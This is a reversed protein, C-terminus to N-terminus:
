GRIGIIAIPTKDPLPKGSAAIGNMAGGIAYRLFFSLARLGLPSQVEHRDKIAQADRARARSLAYQLMEPTITGDGVPQDFFSRFDAKYAPVVQDRNIPKDKPSSRAPVVSPVGSENNPTGTPLAQPHLLNAWVIKSATSLTDASDLVGSVAADTAQLAAKNAAALNFNDGVNKAVSAADAGRADAWDHVAQGQEPSMLMPGKGGPQIKGGSAIGLAIDVPGGLRPASPDGFMAKAQDGSPRKGDVLIEWVTPGYKETVSNVRRLAMRSLTAPNFNQLADGVPSGAVKDGASKADAAMKPAAGAIATAADGVNTVKGATAVGVAIDAPGGAASLAKVAAVGFNGVPSGPATGKDVAALASKQWNSTPLNWFATALDGLKALADVAPAAEEPKPRPLAANVAAQAVTMNMAAAPPRAGLQDKIDAETFLSNGNNDTATRMSQARADYMTRDDSISFGSTAPGLPEATQKRTTGSLNPGSTDVTPPYVVGGPPMVDSKPLLEPPVQDRGYLEIFHGITDPHAKLYLTANQDPKLRPVINSSTGPATHLPDAFFRQQWQMVAPDQNAPPLTKQDQAPPQAPTPPVLSNAVDPPGDSPASPPALTVYPNAAQQAPPLVSTPPAAAVSPPPLATAQRRIETFKNVKDALVTAAPGNDTRKGIGSLFAATHSAISAQQRAIIDDVFARTGAAQLPDHILSGIIQTLVEDAYPGFTKEISAGVQDLRNTFEGPDPATTLPTAIRKAEADTLVAISAQDIGVAKQADIRAGILDHWTSANPNDAVEKMMAKVAPVDAVALAPDTARLKIMAQGTKEADDHVQQARDFGVSGPVPTLADLRDLIAANSISAMDHTNDYYTGADAADKQWDSFEGPTLLKQAKAPDVGVPQGTARISAVDDKILSTVQSKDATKRSAIQGNLSSAVNVPIGATDAFITRGQLESSGAMMASTMKKGAWSMLQAATMGTVEPHAAIIQQTLLDHVDTDPDANVINITGSPGIIDALYLETPTPPTGLARQLIGTNVAVSQIRKQTQAVDFPFAPTANEGEIKQSWVNIFQASTVTDIGGPFLKEANPINGWVAAKAWAEGKQQGEGTSLMNKWALENPNAEHARLGAEGQQHMLYIETATPPRGFEAQFADSKRKIVVAAARANDKANWISGGTGASRFEEDSLQTLGHYGTPKGDKGYDQATPNGDSEVKVIERFTIPDLGVENAADDAISVIAPTLGFTGGVRAAPKTAPTLGAAQQQHLAEAYADASKADAFIGLNKGTKHYADIAQQDTLLQGSDSVTPVLIEQGNEEFSMSRVTSIDPHPTFTGEFNRVQPRNTLDVNGKTVMGDPQTPTAMFRDPPTADPPVPNVDLYQLGLAVAPDVGSAKAADIIQKGAGSTVPGAFGTYRDVLAQAKDVEDRAMFGDFANVIVTQKQADKWTQLKDPAIVGALSNGLEDVRAMAGDVDGNAGAIMAISNANKTTSDVLTNVRVNNAQVVGNRASSVRAQMDMHDAKALADASPHYGGSTIVDSRTQKAIDALQGDMTNVFNPDNISASNLLDDEVPTARKTYELQYADLFANDEPGQRATLLDQHAKALGTLSDALGAIAQARPDRITSPSANIGPDRTLGPRPISAPDLLTAM